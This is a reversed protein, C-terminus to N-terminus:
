KKRSKFNDCLDPNLNPGALINSRTTQYFIGVDLLVYRKCCVWNRFPYRSHLPPVNRRVVLNHQTVDCCIMREIRGSYKSRFPLNITELPLDTHSFICHARQDFRYCKQDTNLNRSNQTRAPIGLQIINHTFIALRQPRIIPYYRLNAVFSRKWTKELGNDVSWGV